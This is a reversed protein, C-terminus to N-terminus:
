AAIRRAHDGTPPVSDPRLQGHDAYHRCLLMRAHATMADIHDAPIEDAFGAILTTIHLWEPPVLDLGDLGALREQGLRVLGTVQPDHGFRMFWMLRARDPDVGPEPVWHDEM